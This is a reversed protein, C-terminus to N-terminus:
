RRENWQSKINMSVRKVSLDDRIMDFLNTIMINEFDYGNKMKPRYYAYEKKQSLYMASVQPMDKSYEKEIIERLATRTPLTGGDKKMFSKMQVEPSTAWVIFMWAALKKKSNAYSNIGIGSGGYINSSRKSGIPLISYGVKGAVKSNEVASINEDWNIMMAVEGETFSNAVEDWTYGQEKIPNLAVIEKFKNLATYFETTKSQIESGTSTGLSVIKDNTFYNGGYASLVTSFATYISNHKASMTTSGYKIESKKVHENIWKSVGIFQDWTFYGSGPNAEYGLDKKMQEKYKDFIDKRYFLIMTTSDFPISYLKDKNGFYSCVELEQKSFSDLGGVIHPLTDDNEYINLDELGDSFRNLTKYPDVYILDYQATKSIFEMNIKEELTNFDMRKINVKIGTVKTFKECEKSLINANINDECIFNLITGNCQKWDFTIPSEVNGLEYVPEDFLIIKNGTKQITKSCGVPLVILILIIALVRKLVKFKHNQM